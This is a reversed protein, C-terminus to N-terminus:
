IGGGRAVICVGVSIIFVTTLIVVTAVLLTLADKLVNLFSTANGVGFAVAGNLTIELSFLWMILETLVPLVFIIVTIIGFAGVTNKILSLSSILSSYTESVAGGVVPLSQGIVFRISRSSLSDVGDSLVGKLTVLGSFITGVLSLVFVYLKKIMSSFRETFNYIDFCSLFGVSCMANVVPQSLYTLGGSFATNLLMTLSAYTVGQTINGSSSVVACFVGSFASTFVLLAELVSFVSYVLNAVPVAMSLSLASGGVLAVTQTNDTFSSAVATVMLIGMSIFTFQVPMKIARSVINFLAQFIKEPEISFIADFSIETVGIEELISLTEENMSQFIENFDFETEYRDINSDVAAAVPSVLGAFVCVLMFIKLIRKM